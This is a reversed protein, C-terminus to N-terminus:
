SVIVKRIVVATISLYVEFPIASPMMPELYEAKIM